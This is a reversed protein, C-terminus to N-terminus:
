ARGGLTAATATAALRAEEEALLQDIARAEWPCKRRLGRLEIYRYFLRFREDTTLLCEVDVHFTWTLLAGARSVDLNVQCSEGAQPTTAYGQSCDLLAGRPLQFVAEVWVRFPLTGHLRRLSVTLAPSGVEVWPTGPQTWRVGPVVLVPIPLLARGDNTVTADTMELAGRTVRTSWRDWFADFHARVSAPPYGGARLQRLLPRLARLEARHSIRRQRANM